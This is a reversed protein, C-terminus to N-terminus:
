GAPPFKVLDQFTLAGWSHGRAQILLGGENIKGLAVPAFGLDDVLEGVKLTASDDDGAIFVVRRGGKPTKAGLALVGAPLHNFAKVVAAGPFSKALAATAPLGGLEEPPVGFANTADIVIKGEWSSACRGIESHAAFPTALIVIDAKIAEDITQPVLSAGIQAALLDVSRRAAVTVELGRYAFAQAIATGIQGLGIIAYRM